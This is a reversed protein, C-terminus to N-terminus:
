FRIAYRSSGTRLSLIYIKFLFLRIFEGYSFNVIYFLM